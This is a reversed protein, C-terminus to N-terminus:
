PLKPKFQSHMGLISVEMVKSDEWPFYGQLRKRKSCSDIQVSMSTISEGNWARHFSRRAAGETPAQIISGHYTGTIFYTNM